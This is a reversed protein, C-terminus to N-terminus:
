KHRELVKGTSRRWERRRAQQLLRAAHRRYQLSRQEADFDDAKIARIKRPSNTTDM